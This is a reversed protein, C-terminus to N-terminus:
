TDQSAQGTKAFSLFAALFMSNHGEKLGGTSTASDFTAMPYSYRAPLGPHNNATRTQLLIFRLSAQSGLPLFGVTHRTCTAALAWAPYAISCYTYWWPEPKSESACSQHLRNREGDTILSHKSSNKWRGPCLLLSVWHCCDVLLGKIFASSFILPEADHHKTAQIDEGSDTDDPTDGFCVPRANAAPKSPVQPHGEDASPGATSGTGHPPM